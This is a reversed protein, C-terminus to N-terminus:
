IALKGSYSIIIVSPGFDHIQNNLLEHFMYYVFNSEYDKISKIESKHLSLARSYIPLVFINKNLQSANTLQYMKAM